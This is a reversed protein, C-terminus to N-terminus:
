GAEKGQSHLRKRAAQWHSPSGRGASVREVLGRRQLTQLWYRAQYVSMDMHRAVEATIHPYGDALCAMLADIHAQRLRAKM